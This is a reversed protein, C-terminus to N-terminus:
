LCLLLQNHIKLWTPENKVTCTGNRRDNCIIQAIEVLLWIAVASLSLVRLNLWVYFPIIPTKEPNKQLNMKYLCLGTNLQRQILPQNRKSFNQLSIWISNQLSFLCLFNFIKVGFFITSNKQLFVHNVVPTLSSLFGFERLKFSSPFVLVILWEDLKQIM